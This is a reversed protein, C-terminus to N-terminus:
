LGFVGASGLPDTPTFSPAQFTLNLSTEFWPRETTSTSTENEGLDASGASGWRSSGSISAGATDNHGIEVVLRDGAVTVYSGAGADGNAFAKNRLATNWETATSYDAIALVTHRVVTGDESLIRVGLRSLLNDNTASELAQVYCKYTVGTNFTHGADMPESILQRHCRDQAATSTFGAVTGLADGADSTTFMPKRAFPAASSEWGADVNPTIPATGNERFYFRTAM